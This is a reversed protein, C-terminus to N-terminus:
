FLQTINETLEAVYKNYPLHRGNEPYGEFYVFLGKVELLSFEDCTDYQYAIVQTILKSENHKQFRKYSVLM